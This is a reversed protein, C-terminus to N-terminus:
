SVLVSNSSSVGSYLFFKCISSPSFKMAAVVLFSLNIRGSSFKTLFVSQSARFNSKPCYQYLILIQSCTCSSHRNISSRITRGLNSQCVNSSLGCGVSEPDTAMRSEGCGSLRAFPEPIGVLYLVLYFNFGTMPFFRLELPLWYSFRFSSTLLVVLNSTMLILLFLVGKLEAESAASIMFVSRMFGCPTVFFIMQLICPLSFLYEQSFTLQAHKSQLFFSKVM